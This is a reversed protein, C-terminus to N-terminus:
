RCTCQMEGSLKPVCEGNGSCEAGLQGTAATAPPRPCSTKSEAQPCDRPCSGEASTSSHPDKMEWVECVHNGCKGAREVRHLKAVQLGAHYGGGAAAVQFAKEIVQASPFVEPPDGKQWDISFTVNLLAAQDNSGSERAFPDGPFNEPEESAPGRSAAAAPVKSAAAEQLKEKVSQVM